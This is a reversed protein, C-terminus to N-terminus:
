EFQLTSTEFMVMRNDIEKHIAQRVDMIRSQQDRAFLLGLVSGSHAACLGASGHARALRLIKDFHPKMLRRQNIRASITAGLGVQDLDGKRLGEKVLAFAKHIEEIEYASYQKQTQNFSITDVQGGLDLVLLHVPPLSDMAELLRGKRHNYCVVGPFMVGDTPEIEVALRSIEGPSLVVGLSASVARCAAVIDASSSAMGKGVPLASQIQLSAGLGPFGLTDLAKRVAQSTKTRGPLSSQIDSCAPDLRIKVESWLDVPMTVLFDEGSAFQGQILEGCTGYAKGAGYMTGAPQFVDQSMTHIESNMM